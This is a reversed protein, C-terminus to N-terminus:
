RKLGRYLGGALGVGIREARGRLCEFSAPTSPSSTPAACWPHRCDRGPSCARSSRRCQTRSVGATSRRSGTCCSSSSAYRFAGRSEYGVGANRTRSRASPNRANVAPPGYCIPWASRSTIPRRWSVGGPATRINGGAANLSSKDPDLGQTPTGSPFARSWAPGSRQRSVPVPRRLPDKASVGPRAADEYQHHPHGPRPISGHAAAPLQGRHQM